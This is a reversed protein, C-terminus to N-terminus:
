VLRVSRPLTRRTCTQVIELEIPDHHPYAWALQVVPFNPRLTGYAKGPRIVVRCYEATKIGPRPPPEVRAYGIQYPGQWTKPRVVDVIGDDWNTALFMNWFNADRDRAEPDALITLPFTRLWYDPIRNGWTWDHSMKASWWETAIAAILNAPVDYWKLPSTRVVFPPIYLRPLRASHM